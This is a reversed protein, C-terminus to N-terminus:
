NGNHEDIGFYEEVDFNDPVLDPDTLAHGQIYSSCNYDTPASRSGLQRMLFNNPKKAQLYFCGGEYVVPGEEIMSKTTYKIIHGEFIENGESDELGTSALPIYRDSMDHEVNLVTQTPNGKKMYVASDVCVANNVKDYFATRHPFSM